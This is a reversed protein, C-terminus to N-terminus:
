IADRADATPAQPLSSHDPNAITEPLARAYAVAQNLTMAQGGAWLTRIQEEGLRQNARTWLPALRADDPSYATVLATQSLHTAAGALMLAQEIHGATAALTAMGWLTRVTRPAEAM